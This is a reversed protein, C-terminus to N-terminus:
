GGLMMGGILVAEAAAIGAAMSHRLALYTAFGAGAAAIRLIVSTDALAGGPFVILNAIVAAVLSTAITRVLVMADSDESVRGGIFVGLYRWFDTALWGGVLIFLYPWWWADNGFFTM